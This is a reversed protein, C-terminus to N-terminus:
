QAACQWVLFILGANLVWASEGVAMVAVLCIVGFLYFYPSFAQYVKPSRPSVAMM